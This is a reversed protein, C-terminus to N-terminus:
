LTNFHCLVESKTSVGKSFKECMEQLSINNAKLDSGDPLCSESLYTPTRNKLRVRDNDSPIFMDDRSRKEQASSNTCEIATIRLGPYSVRKQSIQLEFLTTCFDPLHM